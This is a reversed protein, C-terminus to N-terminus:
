REDISGTALTQFSAAPKQMCATDKQLETALLQVVLTTAEMCGHAAADVAAGLGPINGGSGM